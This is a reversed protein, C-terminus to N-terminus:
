GRGRATAKTRAVMAKLGETVLSAQAPTLWDPNTIGTQRETFALLAKRSGDNIAGRRACEAWLGFILRVGPKSSKKGDFSKFGPKWGLRAFETLVAEQAPATLKSASNQGTVRTLIARYDDDALGLEKKAIHIKALAPSRTM